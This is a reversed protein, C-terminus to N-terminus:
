VIYDEMNDVEEKIEDIDFDDDSDTYISMVFICAVDTNINLPHLDFPFKPHM